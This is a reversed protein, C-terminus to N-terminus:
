GSEGAGPGHLLFSCISGEGVAFGDEADAARVDVGDGGLDDALTLDQFVVDGALRFEARSQLRQPQEGVCRLHRPPHRPRRLQHPDPRHRSHGARHRLAGRFRSQCRSRVLDDYLVSSVDVQLRGPRHRNPQMRSRSRNAIPQGERQLRVLRRNRNARRRPLHPVRHTQSLAIQRRHHRFVRRQRVRGGGLRGIAHPRDAVDIRRHLEDGRNFPDIARQDDLVIADAQRSM